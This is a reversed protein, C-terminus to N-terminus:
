KVLKWGRFEEVKGIVLFHIGSGYLGSYKRILDGTSCYETGYEEHTFTYKKINARNRQAISNAKRRKESYPGRPLNRSPNVLMGKIWGKDPAEKCFKQEIGNNFWFLGKNQAKNNKRGLVWELGPHVSSLLEETGKTYWKYGDFGGDLGNEVKLNAWSKSEVINNKASFELAFNNCETLEAFEWVQVTEIDPGYKNIHSVWYKGSGNYKYPDTKTKGFYNLGTKRHRKHYLYITM